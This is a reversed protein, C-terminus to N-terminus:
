RASPPTGAARATLEAWLLRTSAMSSPCSPNKRAVANSFAGPFWMLGSAQAHVFAYVFPLMSVLWLLRVDTADLRSGSRHGYMAALGYAQAAYHYPSWTLYLYFLNRGLVEDWAVGAGVVLLFLLPYVMSHVPNDRVAGEKTYLRVTSAAFHCSNAFLLLASLEVVSSGSLAMDMPPLFPFVLLSLGGGILLYDFAPNVFMRGVFGFPSASPSPVAAASM